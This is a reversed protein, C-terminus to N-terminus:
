LDGRVGGWGIDIIPYEEVNQKSSSTRNGDAKQVIHFIRQINFDGLWSWAKQQSGFIVHTTSVKGNTVNTLLEAIKAADM